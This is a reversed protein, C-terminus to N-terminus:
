LASIPFDLVVLRQLDHCMLTKKGGSNILNYSDSVCREDGDEFFIPFLKGYLYNPYHFDKVLVSQENYKKLVNRRELNTYAKSEGFNIVKVKGM